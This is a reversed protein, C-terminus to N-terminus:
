QRPLRPTWAAAAAPLTAAAPHLHPRLSPHSAPQMTFRRCCLATPHASCSWPCAARRRHCGTGSQPAAPQQPQCLVNLSRSSSSRRRSHCGGSSHRSATTSCRPHASGCCGPAARHRQWARPGPCPRSPPPKCIHHLRLESSGAPSFVLVPDHVTLISGPEPCSALTYLRARGGCM